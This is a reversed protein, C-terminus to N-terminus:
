VFGIMKTLNLGENKTVCGQFADRKKSLDNLKQNREQWYQWYQNDWYREQYRSLDTQLERKWNLKLELDKNWELELVLNLENRNITHCRLVNKEKEIQLLSTIRKIKKKM